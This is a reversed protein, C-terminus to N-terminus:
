ERLAITQQYPQTFFLNRFDPQENAVLESEVAWRAQYQLNSLLSNGLSLRFVYDEWSWKVQNEPINLRKTIISLAKSPNANIWEVADDIAQLLYTPEKGAFELYPTTSLLNFSLQYVGPTGLNVVEAASLIDAKYGMPEWASIAEVRYSLLAPVLEHPQLYVKEVDISKLNNAILISDFYFESSSGKIVGVRKGQLASLDNIGSPNLTLLKLDNDSEVFSVLLALDNREFSQFMVVSESATAYEVDRNLMLQTCALGGVCPYLTVDLDYDEFFGLHEAILFPSSLPTLSVGVRIKHNSSEEQWEYKVVGFAAVGILVSGLGLALLNWKVLPM